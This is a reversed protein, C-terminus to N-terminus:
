RKVDDYWEVRGTADKLTTPALGSASAEGDPEVAGDDADVAPGQASAAAASAASWGLRRGASAARSNQANRPQVTLRRGKLECDKALVAAQASSSNCPRTEQAVRTHVLVSARLYATAVTALAITLACRLVQMTASTSSPTTQAARPARTNRNSRHM